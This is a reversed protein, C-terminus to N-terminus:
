NKITLTFVFGDDTIEREYGIGMLGFLSEGFPTLYAGDDAILDNNLEQNKLLNAMEPSLLGQKIGYNFAIDLVDIVTPDESLTIKM